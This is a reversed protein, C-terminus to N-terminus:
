RTDGYGCPRRWQSGGVALQTTSPRMVTEAAFSGDGRRLMVSVTLNENVTVVDALRDGNLDAAAM